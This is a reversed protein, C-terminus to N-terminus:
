LEIAFCKSLMCLAKAQYRICVVGGVCVCHILPSPLLLTFYFVLFFLPLFCKYCKNPSSFSYTGQICYLVGLFCFFPLFALTCVTLVTLVLILFGLCTSLVHLCLQLIQFFFRLRCENNNKRKFMAM